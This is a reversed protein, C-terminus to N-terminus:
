SRRPPPTAPRARGFPAGAAVFAAPAAIPYGLPPALEPASHTSPAICGICTADAQHHREPAAPAEHDMGHHMATAAPAPEAAPGAGAMAPVSLLAMLLVLLLRTM